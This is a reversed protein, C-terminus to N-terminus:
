SGRAIKQLQSLDGNFVDSDGGWPAADNNQWITYYSWGNPLTGVSSAYRAVVLPSKNGFSGNNGTCLQWWSTSTYILPYQSTAAHYTNLFDNIWSVMASASLGYCSDGSPAYELDLMGPLTIGDSSWGGGHQLFYNAQAAGSSSGPHAFHYGGRIFGANTAKTYHDSFTPDIYTTGETAKIIVFRAGDSYAKAFDVNPQYNSIDFGKVSANAVSALAAVGVAISALSKM